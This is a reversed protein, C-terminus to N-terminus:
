ENNDRRRTDAYAKELRDLLINFLDLEIKPNLHKYEILKTLLHLQQPTYTLGILEKIVEGEDYMMAEGGVM